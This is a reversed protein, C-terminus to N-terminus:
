YFSFTPKGVDCEEAIKFCLHSYPTDYYFGYFVDSMKAFFLKQFDPMVYQTRDNSMALVSDLVDQWLDDRQRYSYSDFMNKITNTNHNESM